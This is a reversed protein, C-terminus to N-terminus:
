QERVTTDSKVGDPVPVAQVVTTGHDGATRETADVAIFATLDSVLGYALAVQLIEDTSDEGRLLRNSLDAIKARAWIQALADHENRADTPDAAVRLTQMQGGARGAVRVTTPREGSFRGTIVVPRGVFLDPVESPYAESVGLNGWDIEVDTLAAHEVAEYFGDVARGAGEDLGVFAAAGRGAVAMQELLYRNTSSGIGFSFIRSAGVRDHIAALIEDDNGIYGDTLFSVVRLRREEHPFDLAAKIGEIMNTGGHGNLDQLYQLGRAVNAPTAPVPDPGLQSANSSFQIIQFTDDPRMRKLARTVADKAIQMPVGSMSGSCDLVFIMEMPSRPVQALSEPPVLMLTFYGGREDRHSLFASKITSGAVKYRLVFDKNPISDLKSLVVHRKSPGKPTTEIAHTPSYLSEITVGADVDVTIGIDHGSREGPALYHVEVPQGSAGHEGRAVAGIGDKSGPPNYRPGVVMPFVLEYEGNEYRLTHFYTLEIDIAKGPEINAVSQTFINPREQTLLSAVHGQRRAAQYIEEAEQLERVIGRIQREGIVMVFESVAANQPLPFTYIAEIKESFPNHYKQTLHVSAIYASIQAQADTHKLPLPIEETSDARKAALSTYGASQPAPAANRDRAIVWLEEGPQLTIPIGRDQELEDVPAARFANVDGSFLRRPENAGKELPAAAPESRGAQGTTVKGEFERTEDGRAGGLTGDRFDSLRAGDSKEKSQSRETTTACAYLLIGTTAALTVARLIRKM